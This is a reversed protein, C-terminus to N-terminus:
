LTVRQWFGGGYALEATPPYPGRMAASPGEGRDGYCFLFDYVTDGHTSRIITKRLRYARVTRGSKSFRFGTGHCDECDLTEDLCRVRETSTTGDSGHEAVRRAVCRYGMARLRRLKAVAAEGKETVPRFPMFYLGSDTRQVGDLTRLAKEVAANSACTKDALEAVSLMPGNSLHRAIELSLHDM